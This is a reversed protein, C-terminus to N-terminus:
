KVVAINVATNNTVSSFSVFLGFFFFNGALFCRLSEVTSAQSFIGNCRWSDFM